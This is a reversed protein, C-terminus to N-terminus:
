SDESHFKAKDEKRERVTLAIACGMMAVAALYLVLEAAWPFETQLCIEWYKDLRLGAACLCVGGLLQSTKKHFVDPNFVNWLGFILCFLFWFNHGIMELAFVPQIVQWFREPNTGTLM